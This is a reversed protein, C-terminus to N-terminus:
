ENWVERAFVNVPHQHEPYYISLAEKFSTGKLELIIKALTYTASMRMGIIKILALQKGSTDGKPLISIALLTMFCIYPLLLYKIKPYKCALLYPIVDYFRYYTQKTVVKLKELPLRLNHRNCYAAYSISEDLSFSDHNDYDNTMLKGGNTKYKHTLRFYMRMLDTDDLGRAEELLFFTMVNFTTPNESGSVGAWSNPNIDGYKNIFDRPVNYM